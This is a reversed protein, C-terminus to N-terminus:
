TRVQRLFRRVLMMFKDMRFRDIGKWERGLTRLGCRVFMMGDNSLSSKGSQYFCHLLSSMQEALEEQVLMKDSMWFCYFLGKWVRLMEEESFSGEPSSNSRSTLWMSLKKMAKARVKVENSALKQAFITEVSM